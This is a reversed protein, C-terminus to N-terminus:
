SIVQGASSSSSGRPKSIARWMGVQQLARGQERYTFYLFPAIGASLFDLGPIPHSVSILEEPHSYPLPNLLIGDIVSFIASNAGIGIALTAVTMVTFVPTKALRRFIHRLRM